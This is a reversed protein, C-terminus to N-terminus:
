HHPQNHLKWCRIMNETTPQQVHQLHIARWHRVTRLATPIVINPRRRYKWHTNTHSSVAGWHIPKRLFSLKESGISIWVVFEYLPGCWVEYLLGSWWVTMCFEVCSWVSIRIMNMCFYPGYSWVSNRVTFDYLALGSQRFAHTHPWESAPITPKFGAEPMSKQRKRTNHTKLYLDTRRGRDSSRPLGILHPTDSHSRSAEIILPDHGVPPQQSM